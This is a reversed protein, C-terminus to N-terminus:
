FLWAATVTWYRNKGDIGVPNIDSAAPVYKVAKNLGIGYSAALQLHKIFEVGIGFNWSIDTSKNRYANTIARRSTLFSFEPGTTLFPRVINNVLPLNLKYKLNVPITFYDRKATVSANDEMWKADRRVYMFSADFGIGIVPVTFETMLGGTFGARNDDDLVSSNFHLKNVNLGVRPGIKFQAAAPMAMAIMLVLAAAIIQFRKM